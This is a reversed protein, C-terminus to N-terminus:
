GAAKVIFVPFRPAIKEFEAIPADKDM